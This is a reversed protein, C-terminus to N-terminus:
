ASKSGKKQMEIKGYVPNITSDAGSAPYRLINNDKDIYQIIKRPATTDSDCFSTVQTKLAKKAQTEMVEKAQEVFKKYGEYIEEPTQSSNDDVLWAGGGAVSGSAGGLFSGFMLAIILIILIAGIIILSWPMTEAILGAIKTVASTIAKAAAQAAKQAAQAAMKAANAAAKTGKRVTQKALYNVQSKLKNRYIRKRLTRKLEATTPKHLKKYVRKTLQRSKKVAKVGTEVATKAGQKAYDYTKLGLKAAETGTENKDSKSYFEQKLMKVPKKAIRYVKKTGSVGMPVLRKLRGGGSSVSGGGMAMQMLEAQSKNIKFSRKQLRKLKLKKLKAPVQSYIVRARRKTITGSNVVGNNLVKYKKRPALKLRKNKLRQKWHAAASASPKPKGTRFAKEGKAALPKCESTGKKSIDVAKPVVDPKGGKVSLQKEGVTRGKSIDASKALEDPNAGKASHPTHEALVIKPIEASKPVEHSANIKNKAFHERKQAAASPKGQPQEEATNEVGGISRIQQKELRGGSKKSLETKQAIGHSIVAKDNVSHANIGNKEIIVKLTNVGKRDM